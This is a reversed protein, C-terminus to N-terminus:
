KEKILYNEEHEVWRCLLNMCDYCIELKMEPHRKAPVAWFQAWGKNAEDARSEDEVNVNIIFIDVLLDTKRKCRDCKKITEKM